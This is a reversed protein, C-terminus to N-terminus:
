SIRLIAHIQKPHHFGRRLEFSKIRLELNVIRLKGAEFRLDGKVLRMERDEVRRGGGETLLVPYEPQYKGRLGM